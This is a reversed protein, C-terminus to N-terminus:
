QCRLAAMPDIQVAHRAPLYSALLAVAVLFLASGAFTIPDSATVGVLMGSFARFAALAVGMGGLLGPVTLWLSERTVMELVKLRSAGLAMRVGIEQTRRSVAYSMVSYLGIAALVLCLIGLVTLLSAAVKQPYLSYGVADELRISHFIADQNLALAERRLVPVMFM